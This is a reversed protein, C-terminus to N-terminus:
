WLSVFFVFFLIQQGAPPLIVWLRGWLGWKQCTRKGADGYPRPKYGGERECACSTAHKLMSLVTAMGKLAHRQEFKPPLRFM